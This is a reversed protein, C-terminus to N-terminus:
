GALAATFRRQMEDPSVDERRTAITWTFGAPDVVMGSRDGHFQDKVPRLVTAGADVAARVVADCDDVYILLKIPSGGFAAPGLAGFDPYEDAIMVVADGIAFEAHGIKGSPEVLRYREVAGFARAYFALAAAADPAVLHPTVTHYGAPM